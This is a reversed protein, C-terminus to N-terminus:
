KEQEHSGMPPDARGVGLTSSRGSLSALHRPTSLDVRPIRRGPSGFLHKATVLTQDSQLPQGYADEDRLRVAAAPKAGALRRIAICQMAVTTPDRALPFSAQLPKPPKAQAATRAGSRCRRSTDPEGRPRGGSRISAWVRGRAALAGTSQLGMGQLRAYWAIGSRCPKGM